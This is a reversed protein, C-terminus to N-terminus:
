NLLSAHKSKFEFKKNCCCNYNYKENVNRHGVIVTVRMLFCTMHGIIGVITMMILCLHMFQIWTYECLFM